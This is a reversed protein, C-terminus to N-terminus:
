RTVWKTRDGAAKAAREFGDIMGEYSFERQTRARGANGMAMRDAADRRRHTARRSRICLGIGAGPRGGESENLAM